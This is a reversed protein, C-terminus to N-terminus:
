DMLIQGWQKANLHKFSLVELLGTKDRSSYKHSSESAPHVEQLLFVIGFHSWPTVSKDQLPSLMMSILWCLRLKWCREPLAAWVKWLTRAPAGVKQPSPESPQLARLVGLAPWDDGPSGPNSKLSLTEFRLERPKATNLSWILFISFLRWFNFCAKVTFGQESSFSPLFSMELLCLHKGHLLLGPM